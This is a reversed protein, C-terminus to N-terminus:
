SAEDAEADDAEDSEGPEVSEELSPTLDPIVPGRGEIDEEWPIYERNRIGYVRLMKGVVHDLEVTKKPRGKKPPPDMVDFFVIKGKDESEFEYLGMYFLEFRQAPEDPQFRGTRNRFTMIAHAFSSKDSGGDDCCDFPMFMIATLVSFPYREHFEMAEARLEHDNRVMNKTYRGVTRVKTKKNTNVDRFGLTKISVLLELGSLTSYNVDTKKAKNFAGSAVASERGKGDPRPLIEGRLKGATRLRNAVLVALKNSMTEAYKKKPERPGHLDPRPGCAELVDAFTELREIPAESEAKKQKALRLGERHGSRASGCRSMSGSPATSPATPATRPFQRCVRTQIIAM